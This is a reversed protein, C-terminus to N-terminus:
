LQLLKGGITQKYNRPVKDYVYRNLLSTKGVNPDGICIIKFLKSTESNM